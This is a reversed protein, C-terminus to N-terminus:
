TFNKWFLSLSIIIIIFDINKLFIEPLTSKLRLSPPSKLTRKSTSPLPPPLIVGNRFSTPIISSDQFKARLYVDM